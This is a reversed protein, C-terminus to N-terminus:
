IALMIKNDSTAFDSAEYQQFAMDSSICIYIETCTKQINNISVCMKMCTDTTM